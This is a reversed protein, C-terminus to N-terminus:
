GHPVATRKRSSMEHPLAEGVKTSNEIGVPMMVEVTSISDWFKSPTVAGAIGAPQVSLLPQRPAVPQVAFGHTVVVVVGAEAGLAANAESMPVELKGRSNPGVSATGAPAM